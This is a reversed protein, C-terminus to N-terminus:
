CQGEGITKIIDVKDGVAPLVPERPDLAITLRFGDVAVVTGRLTVASFADGAMFLSLVAAFISLTVM